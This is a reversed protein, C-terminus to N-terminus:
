ANASVVHPVPLLFAFNQLPIPATWTGRPIASNIAALADAMPYTSDVTGVTMHFPEMTARPVVVVGTAEIAAEFRAVIAGIAAQSADDAHLIISGDHNCIVESFSANPASWRVADMAPFVKNVIEEETVCCLYMWSVHIDLRDDTQVGPFSRMIDVARGINGLLGLHTVLISLGDTEAAGARTCNAPCYSLPSCTAPAASSTVETAAAPAVCLALLLAAARM